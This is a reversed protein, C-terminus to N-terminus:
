RYFFGDKMIYPFYGRKNGVEGRLIFRLLGGHRLTHGVMQTIEEEFEKM